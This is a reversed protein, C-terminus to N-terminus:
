RLKFIVLLPNQQSGKQYFQKLPKSLSNIWNKDGEFQTKFTFMTAASFSSILKGDTDLAYIRKGVAPLSYSSKDPKLKSLSILDGNTLDYTFIDHGGYSDITFVVQNQIQYFDTIAYVVDPRSSSYESRKHKYSANTLFDDPVTNVAPMIFRFSNWVAASSDITFINYNYSCSFNIVGNKNDYFSQHTAFIDSYEIAATDFPLYLEVQGNSKELVFNHAPKGSTKSYSPAYGLLYANFKQQSTYYVGFPKPRKTKKIFKGELTYFYIFESYADSFMLEGKKEDVSFNNIKRFPADVSKDTNAIKSIFKGSKNFIIISNSIADWIIYSKSTTELQSMEAFSSQKTTELPLYDVSSFHESIDNDLQASSPDIRVEITKSSKLQLQANVTFPM